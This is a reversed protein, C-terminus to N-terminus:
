NIDVKILEVKKYDKVAMAILVKRDNKCKGTVVKYFLKKIEKGIKEKKFGIGMLDIPSIALEKLTFPVNEEKMNKIVNDWKTCTPCTDHTDLSARFDAQKVLLLKDLLEGVDVIFKRVDSEKESCDIDYMHMRTLAKVESITKKDAKMRNLFKSIIKEGEISHKYYMGDRKMCFPKGVDHLLASLRISKDAYMVCRLSHELVDFKHFDARQAMGRGLTLEPLIRDLVRTHDLIKLGVYHGNTDSFSYKGDSNLIMLLESYIRESSIDLINDAYKTAGLIVADTPKFGLEGSFRALRMLRLGDSKFVYEPSLVTDIVKNKIDDVGNLPDVIEGKKIDYYVANCKFDRRTADLYIDDTYSTSIPTHVGGKQYEEVRFRTFECKVNDDKFVVTGTRKYEAVVKFGVKELCPLLEEVSVASSLDIDSSLSGDIIFNRVAGGVVYLPKSLLEALRILEPCLLQKMVTM